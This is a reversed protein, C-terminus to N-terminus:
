CSVFSEHSILYRCTSLLVPCPPCTESAQVCLSALLTQSSHRFHATLWPLLAFISLTLQILPDGLLVGVAPV